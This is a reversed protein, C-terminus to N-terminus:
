HFVFCQFLTRQKIDNSRPPLKDVERNKKTLLVEMGSDRCWQYIFINDLRNEPYFTYIELKGSQCLRDALYAVDQQDFLVTVDQLLNSVLGDMPTAPM